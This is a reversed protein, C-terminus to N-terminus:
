IFTTKTYKRSKQSNCGCVETLNESCTTRFHLNHVILENQVWFTDGYQNRTVNKHNFPTKGYYLSRILKPTDDFYLSSCHHPRYKTYIQVKSIIEQM